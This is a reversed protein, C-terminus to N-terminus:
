ELLTEHLVYVTLKRVVYNEGVGQLVRECVGYGEEGFWGGGKAYV